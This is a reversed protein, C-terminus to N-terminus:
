AAAFRMTHCLIDGLREVRTPQKAPLGPACPLTDGAGVPRRRALAVNPLSSWAWRRIWRSSRSGHQQPPCDTRGRPAPGGSDRCRGRTGTRGSARSPAAHRDRRRWAPLTRRTNGGPRRPPHRPPRGHAWSERRGRRPRGCRGEGRECGRPPDLPTGVAPFRYFFHQFGPFRTSPDVYEKGINDFAAAGNEFFEKQWRYFDTPHLGYQDCLDSVPKKELLHLRLINVKEPASYHKRKNSM